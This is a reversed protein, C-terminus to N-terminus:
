STARIWSTLTKANSGCQLGVIQNDSTDISLMEDPRLTARVRAATTTDTGVDTKEFVVANVTCRGNDRQFFAIVRQSGVTQLITGNAEVPGSHDVVEYARAEIGGALVALVGTVACLLQIRNFM